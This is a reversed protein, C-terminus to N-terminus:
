FAILARTSCRKPSVVVALFINCLKFSVDELLSSQPIYQISFLGLQNQYLAGISVCAKNISANASISWSRSNTSAIFTQSNFFLCTFWQDEVFDVKSAM